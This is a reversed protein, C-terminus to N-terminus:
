LVRSRNLKKISHDIWVLSIGWVVHSALMVGNRKPSMEFANTRYGFLPLWGMYSATWVGIGYLSGRLVIDKANAKQIQASPVAALSGFGFHMLWTAIKLKWPDKTPIEAKLLTERTIQQPPLEKKELFSLHDLLKVMIATMPITALLGSVGARLYKTM